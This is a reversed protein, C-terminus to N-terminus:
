NDLIASGLARTYSDLYLSGICVEIIFSLCSHVPISIYFSKEVVNTKSSHVYLPHALSPEDLGEVPYSINSNIKYIPREQLIAKFYNQHEFIVQFYSNEM